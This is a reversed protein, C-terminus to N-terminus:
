QQQEPGEQLLMRGGPCAAAQLLLRQRWTRCAPLWHRPWRMRRRTEASQLWGAPRGAPWVATAQQLAAGVKIVQFPSFAVGESVGSLAGSLYADRASLEGGAAAAAAAAPRLPPAAAPPPPPPPPEPRRGLGV